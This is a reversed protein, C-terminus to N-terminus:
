YELSCKYARLEGEGKRGGGFFGKECGFKGLDQGMKIDM